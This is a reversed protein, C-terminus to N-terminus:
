CFSRGSDRQSVDQARSLQAAQTSLLKRQCARQANEVSAYDALPAQRREPPSLAKPQMLMASDQWCFSTMSWPSPDFM